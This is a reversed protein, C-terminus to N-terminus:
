EVEPGFSRKSEHLKGAILRHPFRGTEENFVVWSRSQARLCAPNGDGVIKGTSGVHDFDRRQRLISMICIDLVYLQLKLTTQVKNNKEVQNRLIAVEVSRFALARLPALYQILPFFNIEITTKKM